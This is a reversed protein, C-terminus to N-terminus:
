AYVMEAMEVICDELFQNSQISANLKASLTTNESELAGLRADTTPAQSTTAEQELEEIELIEYGMDTLVQPHGAVWRSEGNIDKIKVKM